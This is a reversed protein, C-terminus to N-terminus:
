GRYPPTPRGALLSEALPSAPGRHRAVRELPSLGPADPDAPPLQRLEALAEDRLGRAALAHALVAHLTGAVVADTEKALAERARAVVDVDTGELADLLLETAVLAREHLAPEAPRRIRAIEARARALDGIGICCVAVLQSRLAAVTIGVRAPDVRDLWALAEPALGARAMRSAVWLVSRAWTAFPRIRDPPPGLQAGIVSLAAARREPVLLESLAHELLRARRVRRWYFPTSVAIGLATGTLVVDHGVAVTMFTLLAVLAVGIRLVASKPFKWSRPYLRLAGIWLAVLGLGIGIGYVIEPHM